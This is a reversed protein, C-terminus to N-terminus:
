GPYVRCLNGLVVDIGQEAEKPLDKFYKLLLNFGKIEAM